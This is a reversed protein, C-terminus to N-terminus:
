NRRVKLFYQTSLFQEFVGLTIKNLTSKISSLHKLNSEIKQVKLEPFLSILKLMDKKCFFRIHTKDFIGEDTYEFNGKIFIKYFVEFNRINPLSIYFHGEKKLHPILKQITKQPEVLHELVDPLLISDFFDLEFPINGQEINGIIFSDFKEKDQNVDVIDFGMIIKAVGKNKLELLTAGTGAGIELITQDKSIGIFSVIDKRINSFYGKEKDLYSEQM